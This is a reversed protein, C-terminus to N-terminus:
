GCSCPKVLFFVHQSAPTLRVFSTPLCSSHHYTVPALARMHGRQFDLARERPQPKSLYYISVSPIEATWEHEDSIVYRPVQSGCPNM